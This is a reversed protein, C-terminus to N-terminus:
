PTWGLPFRVPEWGHPFSLYGPLPTLLGDWKVLPWYFLHLQPALYGGICCSYGISSITMEVAVMLSGASSGSVGEHLLFHPFLPLNETLAEGAASTICGMHGTVWALHVGGVRPSNISCWWLWHEPPLPTWCQCASSCLIAVSPSDPEVNKHPDGTGLRPTAGGWPKLSTAAQRIFSGVERAGSLGRWLCPWRVNHCLRHHCSQRGGPYYLILGSPNSPKLPSPPGWSDGCPLWDRLAMNSSMVLRLQIAITSPCM